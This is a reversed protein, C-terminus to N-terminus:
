TTLDLKEALYLSNNLKTLSLLPFQRTKEVYIIKRYSRFCELLQDM